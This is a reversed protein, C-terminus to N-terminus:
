PLVPLKASWEAAAASIAEGVDAGGGGAGAIARSVNVLSM